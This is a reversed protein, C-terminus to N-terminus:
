ELPDIPDLPLGARALDWNQRLEQRHSAAWELVLALVRRPLKGELCELTDIRITAEHEAYKAHFHPPAHDSYYMAVIIGYFRSIQPM